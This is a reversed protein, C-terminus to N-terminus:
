SQVAKRMALKDAVPLSGLAVNCAAHTLVLNALDNSGGRSLANVHEITRDDEPMTDSCLWCADGDRALIRHKASRSVKSRLFSVSRMVPNDNARMAQNVAIIEADYQERTIRGSWYLDSADRRVQEADQETMAPLQRQRLGCRRDVASGYRWADMADTLCAAETRTASQSM